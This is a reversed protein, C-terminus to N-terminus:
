CSGLSQENERQMSQTQVINRLPSPADLSSSNRDVSMDLMHVTGYECLQNATSKLDSCSSFLHKMKSKMGKRM